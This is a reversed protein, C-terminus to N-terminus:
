VYYLRAVGLYDGRHLGFVVDLRVRHDGRGLDLLFDAGDEPM